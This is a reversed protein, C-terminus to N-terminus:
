YHKELKTEWKKYEEENKIANALNHPQNSNSQDNQHDRM